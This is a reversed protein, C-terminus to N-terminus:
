RRQAQADRIELVCAPVPAGKSASRGCAGLDDGTAVATRARHQDPPKYEVYWAGEDQYIDVVIWESPDSAGGGCAALLSAAFVAFGLIATRPRIRVRWAHRPQGPTKIPRTIPPADM